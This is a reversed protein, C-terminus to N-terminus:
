SDSVFSPLFNEAFAYLDISRQYYEHALGKMSTSHKQRDATEECFLAVDM